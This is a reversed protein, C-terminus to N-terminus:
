VSSNILNVIKSKPQNGVIQNVVEGDKFMMMFPINMVRFKGAIGQNEDINVKVIKIKDPMESQIGELTPTLMRCPGCWPAWFDVLVLGDAKLVASDFTSDTVDELSSM